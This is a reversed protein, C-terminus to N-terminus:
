TREQKALWCRHFTFVPSFHFRNMGVCCADNNNYISTHQSCLNCSTVRMWETDHKSSLSAETAKPLIDRGADSREKPRRQVSRSSLTSLSFGGKKFNLAHLVKAGAAQVVGAGEAQKGAHAGGDHACQILDPATRAAPLSNRSKLACNMAVPDSDCRDLHNSACFAAM